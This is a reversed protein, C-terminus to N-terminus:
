GSLWHYCRGEIFVFEDTPLSASERAIPRPAAPTGGRHGARAWLLRQLGVVHGFIMATAGHPSARTLVVRSPGQPVDLTDTQGM